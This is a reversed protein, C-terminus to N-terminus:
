PKALKLDLLLTMVAMATSYSKGQAQADVFSGDAEVQRKLIAIQKKALEAAQAKPLKSLARAVYYHGFYYHYADQLPEPSLFSEYIKTVSRAGPEGEFFFDIAPGLRAIAGRDGSELLALECLASRCTSARPEFTMAPAYYYDRPDKPNRLSALFAQAKELPEKPVEIGLQKSEAFLLLVPATNFSHTRPAPMYSWGGQQQMGVLTAVLKEARERAPEKEATLDSRLLAVQLHLAYTAQWIWPKPADAFRGVLGVGAHAAKELEQKRAPLRERLALLADVVLATRPVNQDWESGEGGNPYVDYVPNHWGGDESQLALLASAARDLVEVHDVITADLETTRALPHLFVSAGRTWEALQIGRKAVFAALEPAVEPAKSPAPAVDKVGAKALVARLMTPAIEPTFVGIRGLSHLCKGEPSAVVLAPAGVDDLKTGLPSLPDEPFDLDFDWPRCRLRVPVFHKELLAQVDPNAFWTAMMVCEKRLGEDRAMAMENGGWPDGKDAWLAEAGAYGSVWHDDSVAVVTALVLKKEKKARALAEELTLAWPLAEVSEPGTHIPPQKWDARPTSQVGALFLALVSATSFHM